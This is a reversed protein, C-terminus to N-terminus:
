FEAVSGWRKVYAVIPRIVIKPSMSRYTSATMSSPNQILLRRDESVKDEQKRAVDRYFIQAEAFSIGDM